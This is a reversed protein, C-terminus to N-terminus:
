LCTVTTGGGPYTCVTCVRIEGNTVITTTTCSALAAAPWLALALLTLLIVLAKMTAEM